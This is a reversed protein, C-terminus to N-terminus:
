ASNLYNAQFVGIIHVKTYKIYSITKTRQMNIM